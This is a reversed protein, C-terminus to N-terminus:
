AIADGDYHRHANTFTVTDGYSYFDGDGNVHTDSIAYADTRFCGAGLRGM